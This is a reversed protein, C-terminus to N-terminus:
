AKLRIPSRTESFQNALHYPDAKIGKKLNILENQGNMYWEMDRNPQELRENQVM